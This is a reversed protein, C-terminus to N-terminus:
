TQIPQTKCIARQFANEWKAYVSQPTFRAIYERGDSGMTDRLKPNVILRELAKAYDNVVNETLIGGNSKTVVERSFNCESLCVSPLGHAMAEALARSFGEYYSPFAFIRAQRYADDINNVTGKLHIRQDLCERNIITQLAPHNPGDGYIEVQWDPYRLAIKGFATVLLTHNKVPALRGVSLIINRKEVRASISPASEAINNVNPIVITKEQVEPPLFHKYTELQVTVAAARDYAAKIGALRKSRKGILEEIKAAPDNRHCLMLPIDMGTISRGVFAFHSVLFVVILEASIDMLVNHLPISAFRKRVSRNLRSLMRQFQGFGDETHIPSAVSSCGPTPRCLNRIQVKPHLAYFPQVEVTAEPERVILTVDHGRRCMENMLEALSREAGGGKM